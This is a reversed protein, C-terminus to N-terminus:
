QKIKSISTEDDIIIIKSGENKKVFIKNNKFWIYKYGVEKVTNRTKFFLNRFTSTMQENVYIATNNWKDDIHKAVMKKKRTLDM